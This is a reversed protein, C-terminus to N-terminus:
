LLGRHACDRMLLGNQKMDEPSAIYLSRTPTM